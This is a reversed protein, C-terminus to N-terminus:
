DSTVPIEGRGSPLYIELLVILGRFLGFFFFFRDLVVGVWGLGGGWGGL